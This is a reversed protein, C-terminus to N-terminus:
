SARSLVTNIWNIVQDPETESKVITLNAGKQFAEQNVSDETVNTMIIIPIDKTKPDVKLKELMQLGNMIPMKIDLLIIDPQYDKLKDLGEQGNEASELQFGAVALTKEYMQRTMMDDEVLLIKAPSIADVM